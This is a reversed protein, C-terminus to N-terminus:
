IEQRSFHWIGIATFAVTWLATTLTSAIEPLPKGAALQGLSSSTLGWPTVKLLFEVLDPRKFIILLAVPAIAGGILVLMPIAIAVSRNSLIADLMMTLSIYFLLVLSVLLLAAIFGPLNVSGGRIVFIGYALVGQLLVIILFRALANALLKALYFASRVIPKSLIWSLIGSKREDAIAGQMTIIAAFMPLSTWVSFPLYIGETTTTTGGVTKSVTMGSGILPLVNILVTWLILSILLKRTFWWTRLERRFLVFFGRQWIQSDVSSTTERATPPSSM